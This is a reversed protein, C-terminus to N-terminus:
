VSLCVAVASAGMVIARALRASTAAADQSQADIRGGQMVLHRHAIYGMYLGVACKAVAGVTRTLYGSSIEGLGFALLIVLAAVIWWQWGRFLDGSAV